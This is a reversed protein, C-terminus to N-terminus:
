VGPGIVTSARVALSVFSRTLKSYRSSSGIREFRSVLRTFTDTSGLGAAPNDFAAIYLEVNKQAGEVSATDSFSSASKFTM